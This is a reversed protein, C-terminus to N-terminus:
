TTAFFPYFLFNCRSEPTMIICVIIKSLYLIPEKCPWDMKDYKDVNKHLHDYKGEPKIWYM